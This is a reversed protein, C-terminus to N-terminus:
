AGAAPQTPVGGQFVQDSRMLRYDSERLSKLAWHHSRGGLAALLDTLVAARELNADQTEELWRQLWRVAM